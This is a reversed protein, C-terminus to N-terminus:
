KKSKKLSNEIQETSMGDFLEKEKKRIEHLMTMCDKLTAVTERDPTGYATSQLIKDMIRRIAVLGDRLAKDVSVDVTTDDVPTPRSYIGNEDKIGVGPIIKKSM